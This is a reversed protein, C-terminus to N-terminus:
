SDVAMCVVVADSSPLMELARSTATVAPKTACAAPAFTVSTLACSCDLTAPRIAFMERTLERMPQWVDGGAIDLPTTNWHPPVGLPSAHAGAHLAPYVRLLVYVHASPAHAPVGDHLGLGQPIGAATALPATVDHLPVALLVVHAGVHLKPNATSPVYEQRSPTQLPEGAQAKTAHGVM